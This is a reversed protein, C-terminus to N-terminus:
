GHNMITIGDRVRLWGNLSFVNNLLMLFGYPDIYGDHSVAHYLMRWSIESQFGDWFSDIQLGTKSDSSSITQKNTPKM